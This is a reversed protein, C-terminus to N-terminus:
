SELFFLVKWVSSVRLITRAFSQSLMLNDLIRRLVYLLSPKVQDSFCQQLLALKARICGSHLSWVGDDFMM